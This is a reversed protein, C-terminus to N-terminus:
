PKPAYDKTTQTRSNYVELKGDPSVSLKLYNGGDPGQLNAILSDASNHAPGGEDSFHLQWFDELRPSKKITDWSAPSGGKDSGNDMIALRPSIAALLAPSNSQKFGHHSVIFVDVPGLKNFPCVLDLEKDWTLDGLDLIRVKGFTILTGLSRANETQDAPRKETTECAPNQAGGGKLPKQLVAGDASVVEARFGKIPLIDGPKAVIRKVSQTSLVNQYAEWNQETAGETERNPGHDIFTGVPIKAILPPVGGAHDTHYHTLLVFDIKSLGAKKAAAVIRDADRGANGPWGTDILLSQGAPTVFLTAQGGEVDVFYIELAKGPAAPSPTPLAFLALVLVAGVMGCSLLSRERRNIMLIEWPKLKEAWGREKEQKIWRTVRGEGRGVTFDRDCIEAPCVSSVGGGDLEPGGFHGVNTRGDLRQLRRPGGSPATMPRMKKFLRSDEMNARKQFDTDTAGPCFCSVVVGSGSLENALAESFSLVYAKTAYYVAMMPGPQFAATSAVNMIKGSRRELMAPLSLRTLHTLATINLHIQGLIEEEPITAFEGFTGFGANNVLIDVAIREHQLQDFLFKPAAAAALDLAVTKVSVGFESQLDAAVRNLKDSSRAVLVQNYHDRAFLKALEYGIGGSAGTILATQPHSQM